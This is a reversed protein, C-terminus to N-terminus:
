DPDRIDEHRTGRRRRAALCAIGSALLCLSSPEPVPVTTEFTLNDLAYQAALGAGASPASVAFNLSARAVPTGTYSFFGFLLPDQFLQEQTVDINSVVTGLNQLDADLLVASVRAVPVIPTVPFQSFFNRLAFDFELLSVPTSFDLTLTGARSGVLSPGQELLFANFTTVFPPVGDYHFTVGLLSVGDVPQTPLEDFTITTAGARTGGLMMLVIVFGSAFRSARCIANM